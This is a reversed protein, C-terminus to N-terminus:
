GRRIRATRGATVRLLDGPSLGLDLGRRGGSVYVWTFQLVSDDVITRHAHRQGIPSIGGIVYGSAREATARDAMEARKAGCAAALAKLDLRASVPVLGVAVRGELTVLLTKLVRDPDLDLAEAAEEGYSAATPDHAYPHVTFAVGARTLAATAPTGARGVEPHGM